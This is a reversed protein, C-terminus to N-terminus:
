RSHTLARHTRRGWTALLARLSEPRYQEPTLAFDHYEVGRIDHSGTRLFGLRANLQQMVVNDHRVCTDIRALGFHTFACDLLLLEADVAFPAERAVTDDVVLRGKEARSRDAAIGYLATGGILTGDKRLIAWQLDDRREQYAAFWRAQGDYTLPAPQHLFYSARPDNRLAILAEHHEPGYPVLDVVTGVLACNRLSEVLTALSHAAADSMPM